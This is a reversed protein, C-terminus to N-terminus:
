QFHSKMPRAQYHVQIEPSPTRSVTNVHERPFEQGCELSLISSFTVGMSVIENNKPDDAQVGTEM